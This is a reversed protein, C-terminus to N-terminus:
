IEVAEFSSVSRRWEAWQKEQAEIREDLHNKLSEIDVGEESSLFTLDGGKECFMLSRIKEPTQKDYTWIYMCGKWYTSTESQLFSSTSGIPDDEYLDEGQEFKMNRSAFLSVIESTKM